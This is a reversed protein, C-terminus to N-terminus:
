FTGDTLLSRKIVVFGSEHRRVDVSSPAADIKLMRLLREDDMYLGAGHALHEAWGLVPCGSNNSSVFGANSSDAAVFLDEPARAAVAFLSAFKNVHVSAVSCNQLLPSVILAGRWIPKESALSRARFYSGADTFFLFLLSALCGGRYLRLRGARDRLEFFERMLFVIFVVVSPTGIMWYRGVVIPQAFSVMLPILVFMTWAVGFAAAVPRTSRALLGAAFLFIFTITALRSGLALTRVDWYASLISQYSFEIWNAQSIFHMAWAVFALMVISASLGLAAAPGLLDRRRYDTCSLVVLGAALCCCFLSAYIHTLGAITGVITFMTLSHPRRHEDIAVVCSWSAAFVVALAMFYSRGEIFYRLVPGSCLFAAMAVIAWKVMRSTRSVATITAFLVVMAGLNLIVIASHEDAILRRVWFLAVYYLPPTTDNVIRHAFADLFSLSPETAWLSWLEDLWLGNVALISSTELFFVFAAIFLMFIAFLLVRSTSALGGQAGVEPHVERRRMRSARSMNESFAPLRRVVRLANGREGSM